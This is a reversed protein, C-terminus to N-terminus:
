FIRKVTNNRRIFLEDETPIDAKIKKNVARMTDYVGRRIRPDRLDADEGYIKDAIESWDIQTNPQREFVFKCFYFEHTDPTIESKRSDVYISSENEVFKIERGELSIPKNKEFLIFYIEKIKEIDLIKITNKGPFVLPNKEEMNPFEIISSESKALEIAKEKELYQWFSDNMTVSKDTIDENPLFSEISIVLPSDSFFNDSSYLIEELYRKIQPM